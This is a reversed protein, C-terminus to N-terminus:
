FVLTRWAPDAARAMFQVLGGRGVCEPILPADLLGHLRLAETCAMFLAGHEATEQMVDYITRTALPDGKLGLAVGPRLLHVSRGTFYLEVPMDMAAAVSACLFPAPLRHPQEPECSWLM